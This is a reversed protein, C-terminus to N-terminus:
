RSTLAAALRNLPAPLTAIAHKARHKPIRAGPPLLAYIARFAAFDRRSFASDLAAQRRLAISRHFQPALPALEPRTRLVYELVLADGLNMKETDASINGAHKRIAVLPRQVIGIPPNAAVRLATAFDSGVLRSAGEDWGGATAFKERSVMMCSPFLPQFKLLREVIPTTFIGSEASTKQLDQWFNAPASDFKTETSLTNNRLIRFNAYGAFLTPTSQWLAALTQLCDPAWLDDSDCFAVLPTQAARLGTNRAVLDGSNDIRITKIATKYPQLAGQTADTSGDDVVIIEAPRQTQALLANLTEAILDARNYTPVIITCDAM